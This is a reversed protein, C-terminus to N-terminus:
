IHANKWKEPQTTYQENLWDCVKCLGDESFDFETSIKETEPVVDFCYPGPFITAKFYSDNQSVADSDSTMTEKPHEIREIRYRMGHYSVSFHSKKYFPISFLDKREIM